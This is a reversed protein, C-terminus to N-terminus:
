KIYSQLQNLLNEGRLNRGIIVGQPDILLNQPVSRIDYMAAVQNKWGKLDSVHIWPLGDKKVAQEWSPKDSDLSVGVVEFNKSKLAHYAKVLNPNEARCPACWSAWFDVLVYKGRLSSLKFPKDSLDNQVFDTARAGTQRRKANEIKQQVLKGLPSSKLEESFSNFLPEEIAVEFKSDLVHLNYTYLGMYSSTHNKAFERRKDKIQKVMMTVTDGARKREESQPQGSFEKMLRMITERAPKIAAEVEQAEREAVSGSVRGNKISDKAQVTIPSNELFFSLHDAKGTKQLRKLNLVAPTTEAVTGKFLFKGNKVEASDFERFQGDRLIALYIKAPSNLGQINGNITYSKQAAAMLPLLM